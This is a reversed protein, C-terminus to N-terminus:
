NDSTAYDVSVIQNAEGTRIVTIEAEIQNEFVSYAVESFAVSQQEITDNDLITINATRTDGLVTGVSNGISLSFTEETEAIADELIPIVIEQSTQGPEFTITGSSATFDEGAKATGNNISYDASVTGDVGGIRVIALTESETDEGVIITDLDLSIIGPNVM